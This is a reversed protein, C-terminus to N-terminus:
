NRHTSVTISTKEDSRKRHQNQTRTREGIGAAFSKLQPRGFQYYNRHENEV